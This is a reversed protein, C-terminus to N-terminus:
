EYAQRLTLSVDEAGEAILTIVADRVEGSGNSSITAKVEAEGVSLESVWDVDPSVTATIAVGSAVNRVFDISVTGAEASAEYVDKELIVCAGEGTEDPVLDLLDGCSPLVFLSAAALIAPMFLSNRMPTELRVLIDVGCIYCFIIKLLTRHAKEGKM